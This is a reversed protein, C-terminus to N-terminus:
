KVEDKRRRQNTEIAGKLTAMNVGFHDALEVLGKSDKPLCAGGFGMKGDPGPVQTHQKAVWPHDGDLTFVRRFDNYNINMSECLEHIENFYSVKLAYFSNRAMKVLEATESTVIYYAPEDGYVYYRKYMNIVEQAVHFNEGGVIVEVPRRFDASARRQTLFEPNHVIRETDYSKMLWKVTGVEITSKIVLISDLNPGGQHGRKNYWSWTKVCNAVISMDLSDGEDNTPTPVCVIVFDSLYAADQKEVGNYDEIYPDFVNVEYSDSLQAVAKGVFGYGIIGITKKKM